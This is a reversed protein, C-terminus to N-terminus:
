DQDEGGAGAELPTWGQCSLWGKEGPNNIKGLLGQRSTEEGAASLPESGVSQYFM